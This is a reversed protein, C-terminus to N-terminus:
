FSRNHEDVSLDQLKLNTGNFILTNL